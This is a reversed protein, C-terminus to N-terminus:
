HLKLLVLSEGYGFVFDHIEVLANPKRQSNAM